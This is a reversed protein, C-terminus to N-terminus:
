DRKALRRDCEAQLFEDVKALLAGVEEESRAKIEVGKLKVSAGRGPRSKTWAAIVYGLTPIGVKALQLVYEPLPFGHGTASDFAMGYQSYEIGGASLFRNFDTLWCQFESSEIAGDSPSRILSLGIPSKAALGEAEVWWASYCAAHLEPKIPGRQHPDPRDQSYFDLRVWLMEDPGIIEGCVRCSDRHGATGTHTEWAVDTTRPLDGADIRERALPRMKTVDGFNPLSGMLTLGKPFATEMKVLFARGPSM